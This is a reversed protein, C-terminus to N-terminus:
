QHDVKIRMRIYTKVFEPLTGHVSFAIGMREPYTLRIPRLGRLRESYGGVIPFFINEGAEVQILTLCTPCWTEGTLPNRYAAYPPEEIWVDFKFPKPLPRGINVSAETILWSEGPPPGIFEMKDTGIFVKDFNLIQVLLLILKLAM